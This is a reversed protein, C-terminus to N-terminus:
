PTSRESPATEPGQLTDVPEILAASPAGPTEAREADREAVMDEVVPPPFQWLHTLRARFPLDAAKSAADAKESLSRREPDAWLVQLRARDARADDGAVQFALSMVDKWAETARAIRDEAKHVLGERSLAAGEASQNAGEPALMHMPTQTVASLHQVDDKVASLVPTLDVQGSEWMDVDGPIAWVGGPDAVLIGNWDIPNGEDDEMPANKVARQRFAQMTAIVMRQLIQHNIRDLLDLHPEFEGVGRRNRFRVVPVQSFPLEGGLEDDWDWGLPNFRVRVNRSHKGDRAAVRVRAPAGDVGRVYLYAFDRELEPDHFMKLGARVIRQRVPDHITVVQRPDEGTILPQGAEDPDEGVIVYSDGMALMSAHVDAAEVDLSNAEWISRAVADGNEDGGAATRFGNVRMRERPAEVVLEAFNTRAKRQFARYADRMNEAGEPLPPDGEYYSNLVQLRRQRRNLKEALRGLWWGDSGPTEVDIPM